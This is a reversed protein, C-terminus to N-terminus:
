AAKKQDEGLLEAVTTDLVKAIQMLHDVTIAYRGQECYSLSSQSMGAAKAVETQNKRLATRRLKIRMGLEELEKGPKPQNKAM